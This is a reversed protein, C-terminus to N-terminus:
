HIFLARFLKVSCKEIMSTFCITQINAKILINTFIPMNLGICTM